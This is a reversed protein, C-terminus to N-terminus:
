EDGRPEPRRARPAGRRLEVWHWEGVPGFLFDDKDNEYSRVSFVAGGDEPKVWGFVPHWFHGPLLPDESEILYGIIDSM